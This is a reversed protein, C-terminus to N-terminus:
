QRSGVAESRIGFVTAEWVTLAARTAAVDHVRLFQVGQAAGALAAALSGPLRDAAVTEGTLQGGTLRAIFSKRSAGLLIPCGLGHLLSLEALLQVNHALTKGFGIGPDVVIRQQPIGAAQCAAIRAKLADFVDLTVDHYRPEQQMTKPDGLAHMLVVPVGADAVTELAEPDFSLASVDNVMSAGAALAQRMVEAKRTDISIPLDTAKALAEIVPIIRALEVALPTADSGPRTSEGGVDLIDAGEAALALGHAIAAETSAHRGGDSFSDPTVNVIGMLRPRGPAFGLVRARPETLLGLVDAITPGDADQSSWLEPLAITTRSVGAGQRRHLAVAPFAFLGGDGLPLLGSFSEPEGTPAPVLGIPRVYVTM